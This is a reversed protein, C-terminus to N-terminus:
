GELLESTRYLEDTFIGGYVCRVYWKGMVDKKRGRALENGDKDYLVWVRWNKRMTKDEKRNPDREDGETYLISFLLISTL